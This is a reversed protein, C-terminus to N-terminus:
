NETRGVITKATSSTARQTQVVEAAQKGGVASTIIPTYTRTTAATSDVQLVIDGGSLGFCPLLMTGPAQFAYEQRVTTLDNDAYMIGNLLDGNLWRWMSSEMGFDGLAQVRIGQTGLEDAASDNQVLIASVVGPVNQPVRVVVQEIANAHTFSTSPCVTTTTQFADNLKLWWSIQGSTLGAAAAAWETIIEIRNVGAPFNRGIPIGWYGERTTTGDPLEYARGGISNLLYGYSGPGDNANSAAGARFDHVVEGNIVIRLASLLNTFDAATPDAAFTCDFRCVLYEYAGGPANIGRTTTTANEGPLDGAATSVDIQSFRVAM